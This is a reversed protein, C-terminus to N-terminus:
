GQIVREDPVHVEAELEAVLHARTHRGERFRLWFFMMAAGACGIAMATEFYFLFRASDWGRLMQATMFYVHVVAALIAFRLAMDRWLNVRNVADNRHRGQHTYRQVLNVSTRRAPWHWWSPLQFKGQKLTFDSTQFFVGTDEIAVM